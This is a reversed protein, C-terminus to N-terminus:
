PYGEVNGTVKKWLINFPWKEYDGYLPPWFFPEGFARYGRQKFFRYVSDAEPSRKVFNWEMFVYPIDVIYFLKRAFKFAQPEHGEIDIKLIAKKFSVVELLDDMLITKVSKTQLYSPTPMNLSGNYYLSDPPIFGHGLNTSNVVLNVTTHRDSVANYVITVLNEFNSLQVSQYLKRVHALNAEVAVVKRNWKAALLSYVGINAGVDIVNLEPDLTLLYEFSKTLKGEWSGHQALSKSIYIDNEPPYICIPTSGKETSMDLCWTLDQNHVEQLFVDCKQPVVLPYSLHSFKTRDADKGLQYVYVGNIRSNMPSSPDFWLYIITFGGVIGFLFLGIVWDHNVQNRSMM